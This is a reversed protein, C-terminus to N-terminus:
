DINSIKCNMNSIACLKNRNIKLKKLRLRLAMHFLLSDSAVKVNGSILCPQAEEQAGESQTSPVM